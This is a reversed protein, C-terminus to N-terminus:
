REGDAEGGQSAPRTVRAEGEVRMRSTITRLESWSHKRENRVSDPEADPYNHM